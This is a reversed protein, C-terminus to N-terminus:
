ALKALLDAAQEAGGGPLTEPPPPATEIAGLAEGLRGAYLDAAPIHVNSLFRKLERELLPYEIFDEREAYIIPKANAVCDSLIGFGPKTVVADVSALVDSFGFRRRDVAHINRRGPWDLPKVAFFEVTELAEVRRLADESWDLTTFSLLVWRRAPDAGTAAALEARRDRGPKALLPIDVHRAFVPMAPSFPLKLLLRAQRYGQEFLNIVRLWRPDRKAFPAYIWDWSFNGVAVAPLGAEAAAELPISPIDAVVLDAGEGRLFEAEVDVLVPREAALELAEDLTADVDVRISDKQVMGVDFAGPRVRLRGDAGQLRSRLFAEPLDTTVTVRIHPHRALLATLIDCSRVGHGYGHATVYYAMHM